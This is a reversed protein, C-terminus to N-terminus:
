PTESLFQFQFADLSFSSYISCGLFVAIFVTLLGVAQYSRRLNYPLAILLAIGVVCTAFLIIFPSLM